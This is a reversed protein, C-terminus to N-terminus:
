AKGKTKWQNRWDEVSHGMGVSQRHIEVGNTVTARAWLPVSGSGLLTTAEELSWASDYESATYKHNNM